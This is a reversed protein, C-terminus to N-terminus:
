EPDATFGAAPGTTAHGNDPIAAVLESVGEAFGSAIVDPEDVLDPCAMVGVDLDHDQSLVTLNLGAGEILPGRPYIAVVRAGACYLPVRPGAVNSVVMNIVPPIIRALRLGSLAGTLGSILPLPVVALTHEVLETGMASHAVKAAVAQEHICRLREVPDEIHTPLAVMMVSTHNGFAPGNPRVSVPVAAKLPGPPLADLKQLYARM